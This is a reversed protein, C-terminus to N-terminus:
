GCVAVLYQKYKRDLYRSSDSYMFDLFQKFDTAAIQIKYANDGDAYTANGFGINLLYSSLWEAFNASGTAISARPYRRGGKKGIHYSISGNGDFYGRIFDRMLEGPVGSPAQKVATKNLCCGHSILDKAMDSCYLRLVCIDGAITKGHYRSTRHRTTIDVNGDIDKNFNKLHTQDRISLELGVSYTSPKGKEKTVWGDAYMFGLWYAQVPTCIEKFFRRNYSYRSKKSLGLRRAKLQVASRTKGLHKALENCSYYEYNSKLYETENVTWISM